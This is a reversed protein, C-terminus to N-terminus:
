YSSAVIYNTAFTDPVGTLLTAAPVEVMCADMWEKKNYGDM